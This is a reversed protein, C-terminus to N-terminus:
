PDQPEHGPESTLVKMALQHMPSTVTGELLPDRTDRMWAYLRALLTQHLQRYQPDAALNEREWPDQDLDFLETVPHYALAPLEPVVPDTRPRWSQSTNMFAPAASFNVILKYQETRISRRPDYYDHYTIESFIESRPTFARQDLLPLLSCGQVTDPVPVDLLELLTPLVDINSVLERHVRGGAWGREPYRMILAVELGPDYLSGKARPFAVGHDTTLIVLTNDRLQLEALARLLRGVCGDLYRVAGQLEAIEERAGPTDRLFPPVTVGLDDDPEIYDGIFGVYDPEHRQTAQVRHPEHYGIQLYFPQTGASLDRLLEIARDTMVEGPAGAISARDVPETFGCRRAAQQTDESRVEHFVGVLASRYGVDRLIQALHREGPKLDWAFNAHTLGMVGNNHPYRGTFLSARSPSCQPATCFARDFRIGEAALTNIHPTRVTTIGYCGLFPGLDHCTILLINPPQSM